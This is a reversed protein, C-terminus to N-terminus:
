RMRAMRSEDPFKQREMDSSNNFLISAVSVRPIGDIVNPVSSTLIDAISEIFDEVHTGNSTHYHGEIVCFANQGRCTDKLRDLNLKTDPDGSTAFVQATDNQLANKITDYDRSDVILESVDNDAELTSVITDKVKNVNSKLTCTTILVKNDMTNNM